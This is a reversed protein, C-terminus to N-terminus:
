VPLLLLRVLGTSGLSALTGYGAVAAVLSPRLGAGLALACATLMPGMGAALVTADAHLGHAGIGKVVGWAVLPAVVLKLGLAM